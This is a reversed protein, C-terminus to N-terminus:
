FTHLFGRKALDAEEERAKSEVFEQEERDILDKGSYLDATSARVRTSKTVVLAIYSGWIGLPAVYPLDENKIGQAKRAGGLALVLSFIMLGIITIIKFSSLWFELEGFVKIGFLNVFVIIVLFIAIFVGPNVDERPVWYQIILTAATLQNPTLIICDVRPRLWAVSRLISQRLRYLWVGHSALRGDGLAGMVLYVIFGISVYSIFVSGPGAQALARGTSTILGTRIAGGIAIM